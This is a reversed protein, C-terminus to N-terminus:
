ALSDGLLNTWRSLEEDVSRQFTRDRILQERETTLERHQRVLDQYEPATEGVLVAARSIVRLWSDIRDIEDYFPDRSM